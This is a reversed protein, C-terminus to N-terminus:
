HDAELFPAPSFKDISRSDVRCKAGLGPRFLVSLVLSSRPGHKESSRERCDQTGETVESVWKASV